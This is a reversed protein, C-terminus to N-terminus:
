DGGLMFYRAPFGPPIYEMKIMNEWMVDHLFLKNKHCWVLGNVLEKSDNFTQGWVRKWNFFNPGFIPSWVGLCTLDVNKFIWHGRDGLSGLTVLALPNMLNREKCNLQLWSVFSVIQFRNMTSILFECSGKLCDNQRYSAPAIKCCQLENVHHNQWWPQRYKSQGVLSHCNSSICFWSLGVSKPNADNCWGWPQSSTTGIHALKFFTKCRCSATRSDEHAGNTRHGRCWDPLGCGSPTMLLLGWNECPWRHARLNQDSIDNLMWLDITLPWYSPNPHKDEFTGLYLCFCDVLLHGHGM